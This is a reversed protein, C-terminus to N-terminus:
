AIAFPTNIEERLWFLLALGPIAIILSSLFFVSWGQTEALLGAIPGVYVRGIASLASLLAFQTATYRKDCLSMLLACFAATGLGGGFNELFIATGALFYNTGTWLLGMYTLNSIAQIIGFVFLTKFLDTRTLVLGGLFVGLLTGALGVAKNMVGVEALTYGVERLLFTVTLSGIFADGVKYLIVLLLLAIANKRQLFEIFPLVCAQKFSLPAYGYNVPEDSKLTILTNLIMSFAMLLLTAEFGVYQAIILALGGSFVMAIRYGSMGMAAGIGREKESLIETRYADVAIDQTAALFALVLALFALTLPASQPNAFAMAVLVAAILLQTMLIWSRRRGIPLPQYRDVLPAWLMKYVYPQGVLALFGITTLNVGEMTYWAQLTTGILSLPLGSSFGLLFIIFIHKKFILKTMLDITDYKLDRYIIM